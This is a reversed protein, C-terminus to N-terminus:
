SLGFLVGVNIPNLAEGAAFANIQDFVDRFQVEWEDVTVYAIHPTCIVDSRRVLPHDISNVPEDDYVDVAAMGPRGADLAHILAGDEILGARSTNVLVSDPKMLGLDRRTIIGRTADVLRLHLSLTDSTSFFEDCSDPVRVGDARRGFGRWTAVGFLDFSRRPPRLPAVFVVEFQGARRRINVIL